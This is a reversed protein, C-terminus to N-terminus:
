LAEGGGLLDNFDDVVLQGSQHALVVGADLEGGLGGAHHEHAAKLSATFGGMRGLEGPIELVLPVARQQHGAVNVTRCGDVLQFDDAFLGPGLDKFHALFVRHFDGGFGQFVGLVVAVVQHNDVGGAAQM